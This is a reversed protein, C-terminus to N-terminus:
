KKDYVNSTLTFTKSCPERIKLIDRYFLDEAILGLLFITILYIFERPLYLNLYISIIIISYTIWHHIHYCKNHWILVLENKTSSKFNSHYAIALGFLFVIIYKITHIIEM